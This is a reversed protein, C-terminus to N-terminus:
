FVERWQTCLAAFQTDNPSQHAYALQQWTGVLTWMYQSLSENVQQEIRQCCETETDSDYFRCGHEHLLKILSAQLLTALSLRKDGAAWHAQATAVVDTPLSDKQVDLGFMTTPLDVVEKHRGMSQFFDGIPQHYRKVVYYILWAFLAFLLIKIILALAKFFGGTGEFWEMLTIMWYPFSEQRQEKTERKKAQWRTVTKKRAFDDSSLVKEIALYAAESQPSRPLSDGEELVFNEVSEQAVVSTLTLFSLSLIIM